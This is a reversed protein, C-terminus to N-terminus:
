NTYLKQSQVTLTGLTNGKNVIVLVRDLAVVNELGPQTFDGLNAAALEASERQSIRRSAMGIDAANENLARVTDPSGTRSIYVTLDGDRGGKGTITAGIQVM